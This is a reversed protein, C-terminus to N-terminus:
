STKRAYVPLLLSNSIPGEQPPPQVVNALPPKVSYIEVRQSSSSVNQRVLDLRRTHLRTTHTGTRDFRADRKKMRHHKKQSRNKTDLLHTPGFTRKTLGVKVSYIEVRQSSSSVNQRGLDLRRTHLRTTHTGTRDFRADRKKM